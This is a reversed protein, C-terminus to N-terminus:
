GNCYIQKSWEVVKMCTEYNFMGIHTYKDPLELHDALREYLENREAM